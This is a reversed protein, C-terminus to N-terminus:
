KWGKREKVAEALEELATYSLYEEDSIMETESDTLELVGVWFSMIESRYREYIDENREDLESYNGMDLIYVNRSRRISNLLHYDDSAKKDADLEMFQLKENIYREYEEYLLAAQSYTYNDQGMMDHESMYRELLGFEGSEYYHDMMSAIEEAGFHKNIAKVGSDIAFICFFVTFCLLLIAMGIIITRNLIRNIVYPSMSRGLERRTKDYELEAASKEYM